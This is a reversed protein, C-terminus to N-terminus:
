TLLRRRDMGTDTNDGASLNRFVWLEMLLPAVAALAMTESLLVIDVEPRISDTCGEM